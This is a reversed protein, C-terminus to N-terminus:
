NKEWRLRDTWVVKSLQAFATDDSFETLIAVKDKQRAEGGPATSAVM